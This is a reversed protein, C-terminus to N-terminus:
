AASSPDPNDLLDQNGVLCYSPKKHNKTQPVILFHACTTAIQILQQQYLKDPTPFQPFTSTDIYRYIQIDIYIVLHSYHAVSQVNFYQLKTIYKINDTQKTLWDCIYLRTVSNTVFDVTTYLEYLQTFYNLKMFFNTNVCMIPLYLFKFM